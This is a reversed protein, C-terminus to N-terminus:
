KMLKNLQGGKKLQSPTYNVPHNEMKKYERTGKGAIKVMHSEKHWKFEYFAVDEKYIKISGNKLTKRRDIKRIMFSVDIPQSILRQEKLENIKKNTSDATFDATFYEM